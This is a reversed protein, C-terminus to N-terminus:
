KYFVKNGFRLDIYELSFPSVTQQDTGTAQESSSAVFSDKQTVTKLDTYAQNLSDSLDVRIGVSSTATTSANEGKSAIISVDRQDQLNVQTPTFGLEPLREIFSSLITFTEKPLFETGTDPLKDTTYTIVDGSSTSVDAYVFANKDIFRCNRQATQNQNNLCVKGAPQRTKVDVSFSRLGALRVDVNRIKSSVSQIKSTINASPLLVINDQGIIGWENEQIIAETMHKIETEPLDSEAPVSVSFSQIQLYSWHTLGTIGLSTILIIVVFGGFLRIFRRWKKRVHRRSRIQQNAM